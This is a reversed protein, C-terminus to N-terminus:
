VSGGLFTRSSSGLVTIPLTRGFGDSETITYLTPSSAILAGGIRSATAPNSFPDLELDQLALSGGMGMWQSPYIWFQEGVSVPATRISILQANANVASASLLIVPVALFRLAQTMPVGSFPLLSRCGLRINWNDRSLSRLALFFACCNM